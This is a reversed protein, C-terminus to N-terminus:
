LIFRIGMGADMFNGTFSKLRPFRFYALGVRGEVFLHVLGDTNHRSLRFDLGFPIFGMVGWSSNLRYVEERTQPRGSSSIPTSIQTVPDFIFSSNDVYSSLLINNNYSLGMNFGVGAFLSWRNMDNFRIIMMGEAALRESNFDMGSSKYVVSDVYKEPNGNADFLTDVRYVRDYLFSSFATRSLSNHYLGVRWIFAHAKNLWSPNERRIGASFSFNTYDTMPDFYSNQFGLTSDRLLDSEPFFGRLETLSYYTFQGTGAGFTAQLDLRPPPIQALPLQQATVATFTSLLIGAALFCSKLKTPAQM